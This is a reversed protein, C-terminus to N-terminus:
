ASFVAKRLTLFLLSLYTCCLNIFTVVLVCGAGIHLQSALIVSLRFQIHEQDFTLRYMYKNELLSHIYMNYEEVVRM